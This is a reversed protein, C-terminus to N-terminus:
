LILKVIKNTNHGFARVLYIGKPLITDSNGGVRAVLTGSITYIEAYDADRVSLTGNVCKISMTNDEIRIDNISSSLERIFAVSFLDGDENGSHKTGVHIWSWGKTDDVPGINKGTNVCRIRYNDGDPAFVFIADEDAANHGEQWLLKGGDNYLCNGEMDTINYGPFASGEPVPAVSFEMNYGSAESENIILATQEINWSEWSNAHWGNTLLAGTAVHTIKYVGPRIYPPIVCDKYIAIAQELLAIAESMADDQGNDLTEKADNIADQLATRADLPYQGPANGEETSALLTEADSIKESLRDSMSTGMREFRFVNGSEKGTHKTGVHIWAWGKTDDNPGVYKGTALSKIKVNDRDLEFVFVSHISLPDTSGDESFLLAGNDDYLYNGNNDRINYGQAEADNSTRSVRFDFNYGDEGLNLLLACSQVNWSEWSNAHWGNSLYTGPLAVSEFRYFGDDFKEPIVQDRYISIALTLSACAEAMESDTGGIANKATSIASSLANRAETSYQGPAIGEETSALLSEAEAIIDNLRAAASEAILEASFLNGQEKGTHTTGLHIWSWGKTDDNPGVYKGTSVCLIRFNDGDEEFIFVAEKSLPDITNEESYLLAGDSNFLLHGENDSINYGQAEANEPTRSIRFELNYASAEDENLLLACSQVNGSEWSNAHWGNALYAGIAVSKFRYFGEVFPAPVKSQKYADIAMKLKQVAEKLANNDDTPTQKAADIAEQLTARASAPYQGGENGEITSSLLNEADSITSNLQNLYYDSSIPIPILRCVKNGTKDSYVKAGSSKDDFGVYKETGFNKLTIVNGEEEVAFISNKSSLDCDDRYFINWSDRTVYVNDAVQINFGEAEAGVPAEVFTFVQSFGASGEEEQTISNGLNALDASLYLNTGELQLMYGEGPAIAADASQVSMALGFVVGLISKFSSTKM